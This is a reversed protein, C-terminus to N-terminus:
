DRRCPKTSFGHVRKEFGDLDTRWTGCRDDFAAIYKMCWQSMSELADAAVQTSAKEHRAVFSALYCAQPFRALIHLRLSAMRVTGGHM